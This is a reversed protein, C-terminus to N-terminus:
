MIREYIEAARGATASWTFERVLNEDVDHAIGGMIDSLQDVDGPTFSPQGGKELIETLGGVASGIVPTKFFLSELAVIGLLEPRTFRSDGFQYVSPLVTCGALAYLAALDMESVEDLFIVRKGAAKSELLEQYQADYPRGAVVMTKGAPLADIAVHFGKYPFRRGVCLFDFGAPFRDFLSSDSDGHMRLHDGGGYLVRSEKVVGGSDIDRRSWESVPALADIPRLRWSGFARGIALRGGGHDTLVVPTDIGISAVIGVDFSFTNMQHLHLIDASRLIARLSGFRIRELGTSDFHSIFLRRYDDIAIGVVDSGADRQALALEEVYREAGGKRGSSFFRPALHVIKMRMEDKVGRNILLPFAVLAALTEVLRKFRRQMSNRIM